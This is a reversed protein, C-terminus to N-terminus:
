VMVGRNRYPSNFNAQRFSQGQGIADNEMAELLAEDAQQKAVMTRNGQELPTGSSGLWQCYSERVAYERLWDPFTVLQWLYPKATPDQSASAPVAAIAQYTDGNWYVPASAATYTNASNYPTLTFTPCRSQFEFYVGGLPGDWGVDCAAPTGNITYIGNVNQPLQVYGGYLAFSISWAHRWTRPDASYATRMLGIATENFGQPPVNVWCVNNTSADYDAPKLFPPVVSLASVTAYSALVWFQNGLSPFVSGVTQPDVSYPLFIGVFTGLATAGSATAVSYLPNIGEGSNIGTINTSIPVTRNASILPVASGVPATPPTVWSAPTNTPSQLITTPVICQQYANTVPDYVIAGLPYTTYYDFVPAFFRQEINMSEPWTWLRWAKRVAANVFSLLMTFQDTLPAGDSWNAINKSQDNGTRYWIDNMVDALQTQPTAPM